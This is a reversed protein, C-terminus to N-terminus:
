LEALLSPLSVFLLNLVMLPPSALLSSGSWMDGWFSISRALFRSARWFVRRLSINASSSALLAARCARILCNISSSSLAHFSSRLFFNNPFYASTSLQSSTSFINPSSRFFSAFSNSIFTLMAFCAPTVRVMSSGVSVSSLLLSLLSFLDLKLGLMPLAFFDDHNLGSSSNSKSVSNWDKGLVALPSALPSSSPVLALLLLLKIPSSPGRNTLPFSVLRSCSMPILTPLAPPHLRSTKGPSKTTCRLYPIPLYSRVTSLDLLLSVESSRTAASARRFSIM